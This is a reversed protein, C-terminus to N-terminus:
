KGCRSGIAGGFSGHSAGTGILKFLMKPDGYLLADKHSVFILRYLAASFFYVSATNKTMHSGKIFSSHTVEVPRHM